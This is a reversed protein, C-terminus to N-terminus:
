EQHRLRKMIERKYAKMIKLDLDGLLPAKKLFETEFIKLKLVKELAADCFKVIEVLDMVMKGGYFILTPTTLNIKVQYSEIRLQFDPVREWIVFHQETTVKVVEIIKHNSFYEEPDDIVKRHNIKYMRKHWTDKWHQISLQAEENFTKFEKRVEEGYFVLANAKPHKLEEHRSEWVIQNEMYNQLQKLYNTYEEADRFQNSLMDRLTAKLHIKRKLSKEGKPPGDDGQHEDHDHKRFTDDRCFGTSASYNEFKSRLVDWLELDFVQAQHNTKMKLYLQQQQLDSTTTATSASTTPHVNIITNKM